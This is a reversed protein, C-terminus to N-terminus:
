DTGGSLFERILPTTSKVMEEVTGEEAIKGDDIVGIRDGCDLACARSHTVVLGTVGLSLVVRAANDFLGPGAAIGVSAEIWAATLSMSLLAAPGGMRLRNPEDM